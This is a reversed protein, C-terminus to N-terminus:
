HQHHLTLPKLLTTYARLTNVNTIFQISVFIVPQSKLYYPQRRRSGCVLDVVIIAPRRELLTHSTTSLILFVIPGIKLM